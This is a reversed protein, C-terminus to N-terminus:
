FRPSRSENKPIRSTDSNQTVVWILLEFRVWITHVIDRLTSMNTGSYKKQIKTKSITFHSRSSCVYEELVCHYNAGGFGFSSVGAVRKKGNKTFWPRMKTNLYLSSDQLKTKDRLICPNEVNITPPIVKHKLSLVAKLMGAFGAAAKLHGINSKVSGVAVSQNKCDQFVNRLATLEVSDGVPTGTGHGEVMSIDEPIRGAKELARRIAKEQGSITPAYIGSAKGDSSSACGGVVAHITDGDKVAQSLRKLVFMVSGEGILMGGTDKDYATVSPKTSFVPTKSFSMFMGLSCDTGTHTHTHTHLL